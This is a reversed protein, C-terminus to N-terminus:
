PSDIAKECARFGATSRASRLAPLMIAIMVGIMAPTIRLAVLTFPQLDHM